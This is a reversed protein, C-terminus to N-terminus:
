KNEETTEDIEDTMGPTSPDIIIGSMVLITLITNLIEAYNSPVIDFGLQQILLVIASVFTIIFTKNRFRNEWNIM